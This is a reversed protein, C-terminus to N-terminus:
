EKIINSYFSKFRNVQEDLLHNQIITERANNTIIMKKTVDLCLFNRVAEAMLVPDRVPIIFGNEGNKIVERMGGCDTSIVSVGLAMAELVTNSIGEELSPLLFLDSKSLKEIVQDHSLGNIFDVYETLGLDHIQYAVNENDDGGAIITYHFNVGTNKLITMADLSITYGKIWHCRGVSIIFLKENNARHSNYNILKDSVAPKIVTINNQDAGYKIAMNAISQSVAHFWNIKPFYKRYLIALNDNVVPSVNIQTGRLSLIIPCKLHETLEPYYVLTKAWQIHLVDLDDLFPPLVIHCRKIFSTIKKENKWIQSLLRFSLNWNVYILKFIFQVSSFIISIKDDSKVRLSIFSNNYNIKKQVLSGYIIVEYGKEAIAYLLQHLFFPPPIEGALVGIRM